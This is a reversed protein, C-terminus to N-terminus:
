SDSNIPDFGLWEIAKSAIAEGCGSLMHDGQPIYVETVERIREHFYKFMVEHSWTQLADSGGFYIM